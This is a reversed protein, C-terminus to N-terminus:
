VSFEDRKVAAQFIVKRGCNPNRCQVQVPFSFVAEGLIEQVTDGQYQALPNQCDPCFYMKWGTQVFIVWVTYVRKRPKVRGSLPDVIPEINPNYKM